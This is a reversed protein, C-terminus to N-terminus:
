HLRELTRLKASRARPNQDIEEQSPIVPKKTIVKFRQDQTAWKRFAHKVLRDELSHYSIICLRGKENLFHPSEKLFQELAWLEKNVWIRLAQFTRTAPHIKKHRAKPPYAEWAVQAIDLTTQLQHRKAKEILQRAIRAALREEGYEKLIDTLEKENSSKIKTLATEIQSLNMRMDIPGEKRFSFGRHAQDLQWSSVGLDLYIGDVMKLGEKQLIEKINSFNDHIFKVRERFKELRVKSKELIEEDQDVGVLVGQSNIKELLAQAHGGGGLTGDIYIGNAKIALNEM